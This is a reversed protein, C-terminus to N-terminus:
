PGHDGDALDPEDALDDRRHDRGIGIEGLVCASQDIDFEFRELRDDVGPGCDAGVRRNDVLADGAINQKLAPEFRAGVRRREGGSRVAHAAREAM